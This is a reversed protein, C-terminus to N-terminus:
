KAVARTTPQLAINRLEAWEYPRVELRFERIKTLDIQNFGYIWGTHRFTLEVLDMERWQCDGVRLHTKGANAPDLPIPKGAKDLTLASANNSQLPLIKGEGDVAVFRRAVDPLYADTRIKFPITRSKGAPTTYSLKPLEGAKPYGPLEMSLDGQNPDGTDGNHRIDQPMPISAVTRWPGAAIGYRLTTQPLNPPFDHGTWTSVSQSKEIRNEYGPLMDDGMDPMSPAFRIAATYSLTRPSKLQLLLVRPHTGPGWNQFAVSSAYEKLPGALAKGDPQWWLGGAIPKETVAPVALTIGCAFTHRFAPLAPPTSIATPTVVHPHELVIDTFEAWQYPRTQLRLAVIRALKGASIRKIGGHIDRSVEELPIEKADKDLAVVRRAVDGLLAHAGLLSLIHEKRRLDWYRIHPSDDLFLLTQDAIATAPLSLTGPAPHLAFRTTAITEWPGSALGFRYTCRTETHPFGLLVTGVAAYIPSIGSDNLRDDRGYNYGDTQLHHTPDVVYGTTSMEVEQTAGPKTRLRFFLARRLYQNGPGNGYAHFITPGYEPAELLPKGDPTWWDDGYGQPDSGVAVLEVAVGDPLNVVPSTPPTQTSAAAQRHGTAWALPRLCSVACLLLATTLVVSIRVSPTASRRSRRANLISQLRYRVQTPRAMAVAASPTGKGSQMTRVVDLLHVAYEKARVGALLVADDCAREAEIQSHRNLLWVLPHFWYFACVIQGLMQTLWDHRRIHALEHLLVVRLREEPWEGADAPLLLTARGVGWTMPVSVPNRNSARVIHIPRVFGVESLLASIRRQLPEPLVVDSDRSIQRICVLGRLLRGLVLLVGTLWLAMLWPVCRVLSISPAVIPAAVPVAPPSVIGGPASVGPPPLSPASVPRDADAPAPALGSGAAIDTPRTRFFASLTRMSPRRPSVGTGSVELLPNPAPVVLAMLPILLLVSLTAISVLHRRAASANRACALVVAAVALVFLSQLATNVFLTLWRGSLLSLMM